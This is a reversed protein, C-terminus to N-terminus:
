VVADNANVLSRLQRELGLIRQGCRIRAMLENAQIPKQLYDDAGANLGDVVNFFREHATVMIFYIYDVTDRSRVWKCLEGGDMNPMQWDSIVFDPPNSEIEWCAQTGDSCVRVNFGVRSLTVNLYRRISDSDDVVLIEKCDVSTM